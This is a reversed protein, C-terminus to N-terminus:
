EQERLIATPPVRVSRIVAICCGITHSILYGLAPLPKGATLASIGAALLPLLLQERVISCFLRSRTMGLTRMLAYTRRESRTALISVLFGVGLSVLLILPLLLATRQINQELAAVTARYQEDYITLALTSAATNGALPNVSHFMVSAAKQLEELGENDAALFAISDCGGKGCIEESLRQSTQYPIYIDSGGGTYYGVIQLELTPSGSDADRWRRNSVPDTLYLPLVTDGLTDYTMQSVVCINESSDYFGDALWTVYGGQKTDLVQACRPSTVGTVTKEETYYEFTLTPAEYDFQKTIRVDRVHDGLGNERDYVFDVVRSEIKLNTSNSGSLNTAVCLIEFNEKVEQLRAQQDQRYESLYGLLFCLLAALVFSCLSLWPRRWLRKLVYPDMSM